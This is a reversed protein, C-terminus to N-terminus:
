HTLTQGAVNRVRQQTEADSRLEASTLDGVSSISPRRELDLDHVSRGEDPEGVLDPDEALVLRDPLHAVDGSAGGAPVGDVGHRGLHPVVDHLRLAVQRPGLDVSPTTTGRAVVPMGVPAAQAALGDGQQRLREVIVLQPPPCRGVDTPVADGLDHVHSRGLDDVEDHGPQLVEHGGVDVKM